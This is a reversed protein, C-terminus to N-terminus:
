TTYKHNQHTMRLMWKLNSSTPILVCLNSMWIARITEPTGWPDIRPGRRKLMLTINCIERVVVRCKRTTYMQLSEFHTLRFQKYSLSSLLWRRTQLWIDSMSILTPNLVMVLLSDTFSSQTRISLVKQHAQIRKICFLLGSFAHM